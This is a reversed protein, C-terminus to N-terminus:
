WLVSCTPRTPENTSEVGKTRLTAPELGAKAAVYPGQALGESANAQPAEAHFEAESYYHVQLPTISIAQVFSRFSPRLKDVLGISVSTNDDNVM